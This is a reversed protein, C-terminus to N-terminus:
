ILDKLIENFTRYNTTIDYGIINPMNSYGENIGNVHNVKVIYNIIDYCFEKEQLINYISIDNIGVEEFKSILGGEKLYPTKNMIINIPIIKIDPNEWKLHTVEGTLCEWSNNKNQKYNTMILKVPFIIYPKNFKLIVIDCKKKGASNKSKVNYELLVNYGNESTFIKELKNKINTHFSDVKKSSRAGHKFYLDYSNYLWGIFENSEIYRHLNDM